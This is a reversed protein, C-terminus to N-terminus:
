KISHAGQSIHLINHKMASHYGFSRFCALHDKLEEKKLLIKPITSLEGIVRIMSMMEIKKQTTRLHYIQKTDQQYHMWKIRRTKAKLMTHMM